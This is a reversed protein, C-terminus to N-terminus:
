DPIEPYAGSDSIQWKIGWLWGASGVFILASAALGWWPGASAAIAGGGLAGFPAIGWSVLRSAATVRGLLAVPITRQRYAGTIASFVVTAVSLGFYGLVLFVIGPVSTTLPILLGLGTGGLVCWFVVRGEGFRRAIPDATMAACVGGFGAAGLAVGILSATFGPLSLLYVVIVAQQMSLALNFQAGSVVMRMVDTRSLLYRWGTLVDAILGAALPRRPRAEETGASSEPRTDCQKERLDIDEHRTDGDATERDTRGQQPDDWHRLVAALLVFSVLYGLATVLLAAAPNAFGVLAGALPPGLIMAASQSWTLASNAKTLDDPDIGTALLSPSGVLFFVSAISVAVLLGILVAPHLMGAFALGVIAAFATFRVAESTLLLRRFGQRDILVGAIPGVILWGIDDAAVALGVVGDDAGLPGVILLPIGVSTSAAALDGSFASTFVGAFRSSRFGRTTTPATM